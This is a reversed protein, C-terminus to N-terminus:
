IVLSVEQRCKPCLIRIRDGRKLSIQDKDIRPMQAASGLSQLTTLMLLPNGFALPGLKRAVWRVHKTVTASTFSGKVHGFLESEFLTEVLSSCDVAVFANRHRNSQLHIARAVLEKGTGSEGCILVTADTPAVKAILHEVERMVQTQGVIVLNDNDNGLLNNKGPLDTTGQATAGLLSRATRQLADSNLPHVLVDLAGHKIAQVASSADDGPLVAIVRAEPDDHKITRLCELTARTPRNIDLIILDFQQAALLKLGKAVTPAIQLAYEPGQAMEKALTSTSSRNAIFLLSSQRSM